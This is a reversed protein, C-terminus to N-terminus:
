AVESSAYHVFAEHSSMYEELKWHLTDTDLALKFYANGGQDCLSFHHILKNGSRTQHWYDIKGLQYDQNQWTLRYPQVHHTKCNYYFVVSVPEDLSERM